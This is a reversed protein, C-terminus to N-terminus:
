PSHGRRRVQTVVGDIMDDFHAILVEADAKSFKVLIEDFWCEHQEAMGNFRDAGKTTLRVRAGRRDGDITLRVVMGEAVLRDIIGTVNGNSVV